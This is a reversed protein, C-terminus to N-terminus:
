MENLAVNPTIMVSATPEDDTNDGIFVSKEPISLNVTAEEITDMKKLKTAIKSEYYEKYIKQKDSETRSFTILDLSDEFKTSDDLHGSQVLAIQASDKDKAKVLIATNNDAIKHGISMETLVSSMEGIAKAEGTIVKEYNPRTVLFVAVLVSGLVIAVSAILRIKQSKELGDWKEKYKNIFKTVVESM